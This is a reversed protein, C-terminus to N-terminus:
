LSNQETAPVQNLAVPGPEFFQVTGNIEILRPLCRAHIRQGASHNKVSIHVPVAETTVIEHVPECTSHAIGLERVAGTIQRCLLSCCRNIEKSRIHNGVIRVDLINRLCGSRFRGTRTGCLARSVRYSLHRSRGTGSLRICSRNGTRRYGAASSSERNLARAQYM